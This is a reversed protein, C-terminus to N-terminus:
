AAGGARGPARVVEVSCLARAAVASAVSGYILHRFGHLGRTGVCISDAGWDVAENLLAQAAGGDRVEKMKCM